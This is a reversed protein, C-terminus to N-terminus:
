RRKAIVVQIQMEYFRLVVTMKTVETSHDNSNLDHSLIIILPKKPPKLINQASRKLRAKPHMGQIKYSPDRTLVVVDSRRNVNRLSWRRTPSLYQFQVSRFLFSKFCIILSLTTNHYKIILKLSYLKKWVGRGPSSTLVDQRKFYWNYKM